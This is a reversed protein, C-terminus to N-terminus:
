KGCTSKLDHPDNRSNEPDSITDFHNVGVYNDSSLTTSRFDCPDVGFDAYPIQMGVATRLTSEDPFVSWDVSAAGLGAFEPFAAPLNLLNEEYTRQIAIDPLSSTTIPLPIPPMPAPPVNPEALEAPFRGLRPVVSPFFASTENSNGLRPLPTVLSDLHPVGLQHQSISWIQPLPERPRSINLDLMANQRRISNDSVSNNAEIYLPVTQASCFRSASQGSNESQSNVAQALLTTQPMVCLSAVDDAELNIEDSNAQFHSRINQIQRNSGTRELELM